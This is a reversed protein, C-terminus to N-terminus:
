SWFFKGLVKQKGSIAHDLKDWKFFSGVARKRISIKLDQALLLTHIFEFNIGDLGPFKEPINLSSYLAEIDPDTRRL